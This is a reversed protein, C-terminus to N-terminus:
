EGVTFEVSDTEYIIQLKIGDREGTERSVRESTVKKLSDIDPHNKAVREAQLELKEVANIATVSGIKKYFYATVMLKISQEVERRGTVVSLDNRDDLEVDFDDNLLIDM